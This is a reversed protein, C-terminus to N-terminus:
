WAGLTIEISTNVKIYETDFMLQQTLTKLHKFHTTFVDRSKELRHHPNTLNDAPVSYLLWPWAAKGNSELQFNVCGYFMTM